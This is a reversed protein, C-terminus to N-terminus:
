VFNVNIKHTWNKLFDQALIEHSIDMLGFFPFNESKKFLIFNDKAGKEPMLDSQLVFFVFDM